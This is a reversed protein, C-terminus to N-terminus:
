FLQLYSYKVANYLHFDVLIKVSFNSQTQQGFGQNSIEIKHKIMLQTM